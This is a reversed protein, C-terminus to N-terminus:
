PEPQWSPRPIGVLNPNIVWYGKCGVVVAGGLVIHIGDEAEPLQGCQPCVPSLYSVVQTDRRLLATIVAALYGTLERGEDQPREQTVPDVPPTLDATTQTLLIVTASDGSLQQEAFARIEEADSVDDTDLDITVLLYVTRM